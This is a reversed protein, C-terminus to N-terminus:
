TGIDLNCASVCASTESFTFTAALHTFLLHLFHENAPVLLFIPQLLKIRDNM